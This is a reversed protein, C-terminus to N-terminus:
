NLIMEIGSNLTMYSKYDNEIVYRFDIYFESYQRWWGCPILNESIAAVKWSNSPHQHHTWHYRQLHDAQDEHHAPGDAGDVRLRPPGHLSKQWLLVTEYLWAEGEDVAGVHATHAHHVDPVDVVEGGGVVEEGGGDVDDVPRAPQQAVGNVVEFISM